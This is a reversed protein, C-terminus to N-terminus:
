LEQIKELMWSDESRKSGLVHKETNKNTLLREISQRNDMLDKEIDTVNDEVNEIAMLCERLFEKFFQSNENM